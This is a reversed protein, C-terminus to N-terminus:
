RIAASLAAKNSVSLGSMQLQLRDTDSRAVRAPLQLYTGNAMQLVALVMDGICLESAAAIELMASSGGLRLALRAVDMTHMHVHVMPPDGPLVLAQVLDEKPIWAV